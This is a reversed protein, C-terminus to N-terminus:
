RVQRRQEGLQVKLSRPRSHEGVVQGGGLLVERRRLERVGLAQRCLHEADVDDDLAGTDADAVVAVEGGAIDGLCPRLSHPDTLAQHVHTAVVLADAHEHERGVGPSDQAIGSASPREQLAGKVVLERRLISRVDEPVCRESGSL